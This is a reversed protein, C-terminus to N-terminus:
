REKNPQTIFNKTLHDLAMKRRAQQYMPDDQSIGLKRFYNQTNVNKDFADELPKLGALIRQELGKYADPVRGGEAITKAVALPANLEAKGTEENFTGYRSEWDKQKAFALAEDKTRIQEKHYDDASQRAGIGAALRGQAEVLKALADVQGISLQEPRKNTPNEILRKMKGDQGIIYGVGPVGHREDVFQKFQQDNLKSLRDYVSSMDDPQTQTKQLSPTAATSDIAPASKASIPVSSAAPVAAPKSKASVPSTESVPAVTPPGTPGSPRYYADYMGGLIRLPAKGWAGIVTGLDSAMKIVPSNPDVTLNVGNGGVYGGEPSFVTDDTPKYPGNKIRATIGRVLNTLGSQDDPNLIMSKNEAM